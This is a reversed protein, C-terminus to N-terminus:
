YRLGIFYEMRTKMIRTAHGTRKTHEIAADEFDKDGSGGSKCDPDSCGWAYSVFPGSASHMFPYNTTGSCTTGNETM